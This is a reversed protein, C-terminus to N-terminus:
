GRRKGQNNIRRKSSLRYFRNMHDFLAPGGVPSIQGLPGEKKLDITNLYVPKVVRECEQQDAILHM